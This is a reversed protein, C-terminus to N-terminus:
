VETRIVLVALCVFLIVLIWIIFKFIPSPAPNQPTQEQKAQKPESPEMQGNPGFFPSQSTKAVLQSFKPYKWDSLSKMTKESSFSLLFIERQSVQHTRTHQLYRHRWMTMWPCPLASLPVVCLKRHPSLSILTELRDVRITKGTQLSIITLNQKSKDLLKEQDWRVLTLWRELLAPILFTSFM